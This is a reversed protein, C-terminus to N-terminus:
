MIRYSFLFTALMLFNFLFNLLGMLLLESGREREREKKGLLVSAKDPSWWLAVVM